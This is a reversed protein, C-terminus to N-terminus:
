VSLYVLSVHTSSCQRLLSAPGIIGPKMPGTRQLSFFSFRSLFLIHLL